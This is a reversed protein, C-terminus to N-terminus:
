FPASASHINFGQGQVMLQRTVVEYSVSNVSPFAPISVTVGGEYGTPHAVEVLVIEPHDPFAAVSQVLADVGSALAVSFNGPLLEPPAATFAAIIVASAENTVAIHKAPGGDGYEMPDCVPAPTTVGTYSPDPQPCACNYSPDSCGFDQTYYIKYTSVSNQVAGTGITDFGCGMLNTRHGASCVWALVVGRVSNYGAAINEGLPYTNFGYQQARDALSRGDSSTHSFYNNNAMDTSHEVAAQDLSTAGETGSAILAGRPPNLIDDRFAGYDCPYYCAFADPNIRVANVCTEIQNEIDTEAQQSGLIATDPCASLPDFPAQARVGSGSACKPNATSNTLCDVYGQKASPQVIASEGLVPAAIPAAAPVPVAASGFQAQAQTAACALLLLAWGHQRWFM